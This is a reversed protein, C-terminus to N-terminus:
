LVGRNKMDILVLALIFAALILTALAEWNRGSRSRTNLWNLFNRRNM